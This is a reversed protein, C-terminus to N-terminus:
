SQPIEPIAGAVKPNQPLLEQRRKPRQRESCPNPQVVTASKRISIDVPYSGSLLSNRGKAQDRMAVRAVMARAVVCRSRACKRCSLTTWRVVEGRGGFSSVMVCTGSSHSSSKSVMVMVMVVVKPSFAWILRMPRQERHQHLRRPRKSSSPFHVPILHRTHPIDQNTNASVGVSLRNSRLRAQRSGPRKYFTSEPNEAQGTSGTQHPPDEPVAHGSCLTQGTEPPLIPDPSPSM